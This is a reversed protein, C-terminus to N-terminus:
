RPTRSRRPAPADEAAGSGDEADESLVRAPVPAPAPEVAVPTVEMKSDDAPFVSFGFPLCEGVVEDPLTLSGDPNEVALRRAKGPLVANPHTKFVKTAM